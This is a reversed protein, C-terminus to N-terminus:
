NCLIAGWHRHCVRIYTAERYMGLIVICSRLLNMQSSARQSRSKLISSALQLAGDAFHAFHGHWLPGHQSISCVRAVIDGKGSGAKRAETALAERGTRIVQAPWSPLWTLTAWRTGAPSAVVWSARCRTARRSSKGSLECRLTWQRTSDTMRGGLVTWCPACSPSKSNEVLKPMGFFLGMSVLGLLIM